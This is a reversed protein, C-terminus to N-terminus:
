LRSHAIAGPASLPVQFPRVPVPFNEPSARLEPQHCFAAASPFTNAVFHPPVQLQYPEVSSDFPVSVTLIAFARVSDPSKRGTAISHVELLRLIDRTAQKKTLTSCFGWR